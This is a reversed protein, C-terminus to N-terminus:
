GMICVGVHAYWPTLLTLKESFNVLRSSFSHDGRPLDLKSDLQTVGLDFNVKFKLGKIGTPLSFTVCVCVWM